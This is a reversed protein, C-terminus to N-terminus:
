LKTPIKRKKYDPFADKRREDRGGDWVVVVRDPEFEQLYGRIMRLGNFLVEVREGSNSLMIGIHYAMHAINNGDILLIKM